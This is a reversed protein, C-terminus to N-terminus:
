DSIFYDAYASISYFIFMRTNFVNLFGCNREKIKNEDRKQLENVVPEVNLILVKYKITKGRKTSMYGLLDYENKKTCNIGM